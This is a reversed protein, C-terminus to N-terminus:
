KAGAKQQTKKNKRGINSQRLLHQPMQNQGSHPYGLPALFFLSIAFVIFCVSM